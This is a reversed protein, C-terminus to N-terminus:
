RSGRDTRLIVVVSRGFDEDPTPRRADPTPPRSDPPCLFGATKTKGPERNGYGSEREERETKLEERFAAIASAHLWLLAASLVGMGGANILANILAEM